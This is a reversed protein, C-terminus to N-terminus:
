VSLCISRCVSLCVYLVFLSLSASKFNVPKVVVRQQRTCFEEDMGEVNSDFKSLSIFLKGTPDKPLKEIFVVGGRLRETDLVRCFFKPVPFGKDRLRYKSENKKVKLKRDHEAVNKVLGSELGL